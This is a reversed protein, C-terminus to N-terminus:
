EPSVKKDALLDEDGAKKCFSDGSKTVERRAVPMDKWWFSFSIIRQSSPLSKDAIRFIVHKGTHMRFINYKETKGLGESSWVRLFDHDVIGLEVSFTM